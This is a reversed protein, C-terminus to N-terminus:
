AAFPLLPAKGSKAQEILFRHELDALRHRYTFQKGVKKEMNIMEDWLAPYHLYIAKLEKLSKLPCCFCSVRHFHKYLGDWTFGLDYCYQLAQKESVGWEILPFSLRNKSKAARNIEDFAFGVYSVFDFSNKAGHWKRPIYKINQATLNIAEVKLSTCWRTRPGPWGYGPEGKHKGKTKLHESFWYDFDVSVSEVCLGHKKIRDNVQNIHSYMAPFEKGTDAHIVRDVPWGKELMMFLMATSDKGGSFNVVYKKTTPHGM